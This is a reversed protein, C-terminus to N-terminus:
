MSKPADDEMKQKWIEITKKVKDCEGSEGLYSHLRWLAALFNIAIKFDDMRFTNLEYKERYHNASDSLLKKVLALHRMRIDYGPLSPDMGAILNKMDLINKAVIALRGELEVFAWRWKSNPGFSERTSDIFFGLNRIFDYREGDSLEKVKSQCEALESFPIDVAGTVARELHILIRYCAKRAENLFNENKICLFQISLKNLLLYCAVVSLIENAMAIREYEIRESIKKTKVNFEFDAEKKLVDEIEKKYKIIRGNYITRAQESIKGM